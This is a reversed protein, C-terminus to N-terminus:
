FITYLIDLKGKKKQNSGHYRSIQTNHDDITQLYHLDKLGTFCFPAIIQFNLFLIIKDAM